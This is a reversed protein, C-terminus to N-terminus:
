LPHPLTMSAMLQVARGRLEDEGAEAQIGGSGLLEGGCAEEM